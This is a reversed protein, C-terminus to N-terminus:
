IYTENTKVVDRPKISTCFPGDPQTGVYIEMNYMYFMRADVMAYIKIGYKNSKKPIYQIFGCRGRFEELKEDITVNEGVSYYKQCNNIIKKLFLGYQLWVILEKENQERIYMM